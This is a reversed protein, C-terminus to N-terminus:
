GVREAVAIAVVALTIPMGRGRRIVQDLASNRWQHYDTTDGRFRPESGGFLFHMVGDRTPTPCEGALEDLDALSELVDLGPNLAFSVLLALEDVPADGRGVADAFPTVRQLVSLRLERDM